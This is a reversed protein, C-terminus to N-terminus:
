PAGGLFPVSNIAMVNVDVLRAKVSISGSRDYIMM